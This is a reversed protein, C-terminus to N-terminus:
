LLEWKTQWYHVPGTECRWGVGRTRNSLSHDITVKGGCVPCRNPLIPTFGLPAEPAKSVLGNKVWGVVMQGALCGDQGCSCALGRFITHSKGDGMNVMYVYGSVRVSPTEM